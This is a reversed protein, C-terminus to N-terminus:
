IFLKFRRERTWFDATKLVTSFPFDGPESPGGHSNLLSIFSTKIDLNSNKHLVKCWPSGKGSGQFCDLIIKMEFWTFIGWIPM